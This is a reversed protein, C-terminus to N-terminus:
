SAAEVMAGECAGSRALVGRKSEDGHWTAIWRGPYVFLALVKSGCTSCRVYRRPMSTSRWQRLCIRQSTNRFYTM